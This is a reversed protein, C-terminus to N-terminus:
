DKNIHFPPGNKQSTPFQKKVEQFQGILSQINTIAGNLQNIHGEVKNLDVNEVMKFLQNFLEQKDVKSSKTEDSTPKEKSNTVEKYDQWSPDEEGLLVWKEYIEQWSEGKQKVEKILGPHKHVFSKFEVISPHVDKNAM